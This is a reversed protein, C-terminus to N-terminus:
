KRFSREKWVVETRMLVLPPYILVYATYYLEYLPWVLLKRLQRFRVLAPLSFTLDVAIKGALAGWAAPSPAVLLTFLLLLNFLYPVAFVLMSTADMGRGGTFWRKKQNYLHKWTECPASRVLKRLDMPIIAAFGAGIVAHFLAYDETVSFPITRYGGVTDYARRSVSLNTGVATTPFGMRLTAAAASFLVMWDLAQMTSFWDGGRLLTFGAVAGVKPNNYYKVTEEVWGTPVLCDADTFLIIEGAATDIGQTVANTKGRLHGEESTCRLLRLQPNGTAMRAVIAGTRDTSRDDVIVIDLLERPYTLHLLSEVCAGIHAEENRAAVVISVRPRLTSDAPYHSALAGITFVLFLLVYAVALLLLIITFM